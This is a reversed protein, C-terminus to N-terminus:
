IDSLLKHRFRCGIYANDNGPQQAGCKVVYTGCNQPSDSIGVRRQYKQYYGIQQVDPHVIKKYQAEMHSDATRRKCSNRRLGYRSDDAEKIHSFLVAPKYQRAPIDHRVTSHILLKQRCSHGHAEHYGKHRNARECQLCADVSEPVIDYHCM